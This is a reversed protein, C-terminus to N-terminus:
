NKRDLVSKDNIITTIMQKDNLASTVEELDWQLFVKHFRPEKKKVIKLIGRTEALLCVNQFESQDISIINKARCVKKYIDHLRGVTVDKNKDHKIILLLTCILIKQQLPFGDDVDNELAQAQGYVTNLVSVVEKMQVKCETEIPVKVEAPLLLKPEDAENDIFNELKQIDIVKANKRKENEAIEVVRRGINLARRIDGSVSSVKAALLQIAAPPFLESVGSDELRSKFIEVIQQKTYASFHMIKPKLECKTQLRTLLRDTLDLANAIGILLLRSNEFSPWEFINYLITQKKGVLQDVEDLILMTMKHHSKLYKEITALYEKESTGNSKLELEMCIKKYISGISSISTCNIYVTKLKSKFKDDNMIKSLTATKGTGPAGSVYLSGSSKTDIIGNFFTTLEEFETERGPLRFGSNDCLAKRASRFKNEPISKHKLPNVELQELKDTVTPSLLITKIRSGKKKPPTDEVDSESSSSSRKLVQKRPKRIKTPTKFETKRNDNENEKSSDESLLLVSRRTIRSM